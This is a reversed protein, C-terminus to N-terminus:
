GISPVRLAVARDSRVRRQRVRRCNEREGDNWGMKSGEMELELVHM